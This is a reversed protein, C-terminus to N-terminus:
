LRRDEHSNDSLSPPHKSEITWCITHRIGTEIIWINRYTAEREVSISMKGDNDNDSDDNM